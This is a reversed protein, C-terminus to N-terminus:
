RRASSVIASPRAPAVRLKLWLRFLEVFTRVIMRVGSGKPKGAARPYHTMGVERIRAGRQMARFIVEPEVMASSPSAEIPIAQLLTRRYLKSTSIQKLKIGFFIRCLLHFAHSNFSRYFPEARNKRYGVIIDAGDIVAVFNALERLDVQKDAPALFVWDKSANAYCTKIAGAFGQNKRHHIVSVHSPDDHAARDAIAGTADTSGDDVVLVEYDRTLTRLVERGEDVVSGLTAEENFAPIVISISEEIM